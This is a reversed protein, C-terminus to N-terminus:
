AKRMLLVDSDGKTMINSRCLLRSSHRVNLTTHPLRPLTNFVPCVDMNICDCIFLPLIFSYFLLEKQM